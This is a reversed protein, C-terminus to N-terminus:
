NGSTEKLVAWIYITENDSRLREAKDIICTKGDFRVYHSTQDLQTIDHEASGIYLYYSITDHGIKNYSPGLYMKNKYRIPYIIAMYPGSSWGDDSVVNVCVGCKKIQNSTIIQKKM